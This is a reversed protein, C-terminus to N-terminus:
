VPGERVPLPSPTATVNGAKGEGVEVVWGLPRVCASLEPSLQLADAIDIDAGLECSNGRLQRQLCRKTGRGRGGDCGARRTLGCGVFGKFMEDGRRVSPLVIRRRSAV